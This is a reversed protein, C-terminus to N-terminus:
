DSFNHHGNSAYNTSSNHQASIAIFVICMCMLWEGIFAFCRFGYRNCEFTMDSRLRWDVEFLNIWKKGLQFTLIGDGTHWKKSIFHVRFIGSNSLFAIVRRLIFYIMFEYNTEYVLKQRNLATPQITVVNAYNRSHLIAIKIEGRDTRYINWKVSPMTSYSKLVKGHPIDSWSLGLSGNSYM